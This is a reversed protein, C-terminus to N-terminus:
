YIFSIFFNNKPIPIKTKIAPAPHAFVAGCAGVSLGGLPLSTIVEFGVVVGCVGTPVVVVEVTVDEVGTVMGENMGM